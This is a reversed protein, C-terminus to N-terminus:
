DVAQEAVREPEQGARPRARGYREDVSVYEDAELANGAIQMRNADRPLYHGLVRRPSDDLKDYDIKHAALSYYFPLEIASEFPAYKMKPYSMARAPLAAAVPASASTEAASLPHHSPIAPHCRHSILHRLRM